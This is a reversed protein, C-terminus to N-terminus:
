SRVTQRVMFDVYGCTLSGSRTHFLISSLAGACAPLPALQWPTRFLEWLIKKNKRKKRALIRNKRRRRNKKMRGELDVEMKKQRADMEADIKQKMTKNEILQKKQRTLSEIEAKKRAVLKELEGRKRESAARAESLRRTRDLEPLSRADMESRRLDLDIELSKRQEM